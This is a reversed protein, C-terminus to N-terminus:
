RAVKLIANFTKSFTNKDKQLLQLYKTRQPARISMLADHVKVADKQKVKIKKMGIDCMICRNVDRGEGGWIFVPATKSPMTTKQILNAIYQFFINEHYM